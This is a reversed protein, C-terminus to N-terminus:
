FLEEFKVEVQSLLQSITEITEEPVRQLLLCWDDLFLRNLLYRPNSQDFAIALEVIMKILCRRGLKLALKMDELVCVALKYSKLYPVIMCRRMYAVVVERISSFEVFCCLSASLENITTASECNLEFQNTRYEHLFCLCVDVIKFLEKQIDEKSLLHHKNKLGTLRQLAKQSLINELTLKASFDIPTGKSDYLTLPQDIVSQVEEDEEEAELESLKGNEIERMAAM